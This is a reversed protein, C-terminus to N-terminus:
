SKTALMGEESRAQEAKTNDAGTARYPLYRKLRLFPAEWLHYSAMACLVSLGGGVICFVLAGPLSSGWLRPFIDTQLGVISELFWIVPVHLVYLGYSYKGMFVLFRGSFKRGLWSRSEATILIAILSAFATAVLTYGFVRFDRAESGLWGGSNLFYTLLITSCAAFLFKHWSGLVSTGSKGQIILALFAGAALTDMRTPLLVYIAVSSSMVLRFAVAGLFCAAALYMLQRRNLAWVALPWLLYFQEEVALSWFHGVCQLQPWGEMAIHFNSLYLWYWLQTDVLERSSEQHALYPTLFVALILYGYYLPFIRLVRRGYFSRFYNESGKAKLLIGTILFGSLVFFLDVGLWSSFALKFVQRDLWFVQDLGSAPILHHFLILLVALGRVGDLTAIRVNKDNNEV